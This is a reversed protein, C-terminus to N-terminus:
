RRLLGGLVGRVIANGVQRGVSSSVSRAVSKAIVEGMTQRQPARGGRPSVPAPAGTGLIGGLIGGLMSGAGGGGAGGPIMGAEQQEAAQEAALKEKARKQLTEYASVRDIPEDYKGALPSSGILRRREDATIPGIKAAPPRIHTRAVMTPTGKGELVSVLAEGTGLEM